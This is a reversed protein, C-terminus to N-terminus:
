SAVSPARPPLAARYIFQWSVPLDPPAATLIGLCVEAPLPLPASASCFDAAPLIAMAAVPVIEQQRPSQYKAFEVACCTDDDGCPEGSDETSHHEDTSCSFLELDTLAEIRCHSMLPVWALALLLVMWTRLTRVIQLHKMAPSQEIVVKTTELCSISDSSRKSRKIPFERM